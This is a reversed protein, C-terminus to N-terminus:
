ASKRRRIINKVTEKIENFTDRDVLTIWLMFVSLVVVMVLVAMGIWEALSACQLPRLVSIIYCCFFVPLWIAMKKLYQKGTRQIIHKDAHRVLLPTRFLAGTITGILVGYIGLPKVLVISLALNIVAEIVAYHKVQKFHGATNICVIAPIRLNVLMQAFIFLVPFGAYVYQADMNATYVTVFPKFLLIAVAYLYFTLFFYVSEFKEFKKKFENFDAFYTKGIGAFVAERCSGLINGLGSTVFHYVSYISASVLGVSSSLVLLDTSSIVMGVVEAVLVDKRKTNKPLEIKQKKYENLYPFKHRIYTGALVFRLLTSAVAVGQYLLINKATFLVTLHMATSFLLLLINFIYVVFSLNHAIMIVSYKAQFFYEMAASVSRMILFAFIITSPLDDKILLPSLAIIPTIITLFVYGMRRYQRGTDWYIAAIKKEDDTAIYQFMQQISAASIGFQLVSLLSLIQSVSQNLGNYISGFIETYLKPLILGILINIIQYAMSVAFNLIARKKM